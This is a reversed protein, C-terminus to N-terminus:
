GFARRGDGRRRRRNEALDKEAEGLDEYVGALTKNFCELMKTLDKLRDDNKGIEEGAAPDGLSMTGDRRRVYDRDEIVERSREVGEGIEKCAVTLQNVEANFRAKKRGDITVCRKASARRELRTQVTQLRKLFGENVKKMREIRRAMDTSLKAMHTKLVPAVEADLEKEFAALQDRNARFRNKMHSLGVILTTQNEAKKQNFEEHAADWMLQYLNVYPQAVQASQPLDLM